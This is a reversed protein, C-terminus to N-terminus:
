LSNQVVPEKRGCLELRHQGMHQHGIIDFSLRVEPRQFNADCLSCHWIRLSLNPNPFSFSNPHLFNFESRINENRINESNYM